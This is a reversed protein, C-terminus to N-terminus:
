GKLIAKINLSVKNELDKAESNLVELENNLEELKEEFVYDDAEADAVGIYRGSNLSWNQAEVDEITAVKCLGLINQYKLDPFQEEFEQKKSHNFEPQEGRYLKVINTIYEIHAETFERHARDIQKYIERADLFLVKDKRKSNVKNKDFFWLTCPLTVNHFFNSGISIMVDVVNEKVLEARIDQETQRADSASNPMVFGTRGTSNLASYFNQIWLYNANDVKPIAKYRKDKKIREKDVGSVNFPPNAMVFDFNGISNHRDEYFTNGQLITGELGHVALNMKCLRVTGETKEQGCIEIKENPLEKHRKIFEASQVFMGGSGCAPDLIRGSIPKLIEVILKVISTPTFFEGGRQGESSAFKGLFYEYIKGFADGDIKEIKIESFQKLLVILLDDQIRLYNKPLVGKLSENENEILSMANNLAKGLSEGEPLNLLYSYRAKEPLHLVGDKHYKSRVSTAIRRNSSKSKQEDYIKKQKTFKYDAYRLFILGLVPTSFEATKLNSEARLKNATHWLGNQLKKISATM